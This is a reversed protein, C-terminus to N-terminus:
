TLEDTCQWTGLQALHRARALLREGKAGPACL